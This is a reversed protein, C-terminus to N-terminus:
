RQLDASLSLHPCALRHNVHNPLWGAANTQILRGLSDCGYLTVEQAAASFSGPFARTLTVIGAACARFKM